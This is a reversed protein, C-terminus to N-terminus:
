LLSAGTQPLRGSWGRRDRSKRESRDHEASPRRQFARIGRLGRSISVHSPTKDPHLHIKLVPPTAADEDLSHLGPGIVTMVGANGPRFPAPTTFAATNFYSTLSRQDSPLASKQGAVADPRTSRGDNASAMLVTFPFGTQRQFIGSTQWGGMVAEVLKSGSGFRKGKGFSLGYLASAVFRQRVDFGALGRESKNLFDQALEDQTGQRRYSNGDAIDEFFHSLIAFLSYCM